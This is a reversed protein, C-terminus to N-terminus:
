TAQGVLRAGGESRRGSSNKAWKDDRRFKELGKMPNYAKKIEGGTYAGDRVPYASALGLGGDGAPEFRRPNQKPAQRNRWWGFPFGMGSVRLPAWIVMRRSSRWPVRM